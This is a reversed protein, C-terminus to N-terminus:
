GQISAFSALVILLLRSSVSREKRASSCASARTIGGLRLHLSTQAAYAAALLLQDFLEAVAVGARASRTAAELVAATVAAAKSPAM